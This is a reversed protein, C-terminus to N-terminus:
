PSRTYADHIARANYTLLDPYGTVAETYGLPDLVGVRVGAEEALAEAPAAPLQPERFIAPIGLDRIKELIKSVRRPGPENGALDLYTAAVELRYHRFFYDFGPHFTVVHRTPLEALLKGNRRDAQSVAERFARGNARFRERGAPRLASLRGSLVQAGRVMVEPDLWIHGNVAGSSERIPEFAVADAMRVHATGENLRALPAELRQQGIGNSIVLHAKRLRVLDRVSPDYHHPDHGRRLLTHVQAQEGAIARALMAYPPITAVIRLPQTWALAPLLALVVTLAVSRTPAPLRRIL